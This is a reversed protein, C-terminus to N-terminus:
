RVDIMFSVLESVAVREPPRRGSGTTTCRCIKFRPHQHAESSGTGPLTVEFLLAGISKGATKLVDALDNRSILTHIHEAGLVGIRAELLARHEADAEELRGLDARARALNNRSTL